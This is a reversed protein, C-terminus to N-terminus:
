RWGVKEATFKNIVLNGDAFHARRFEGSPNRVFLCMIDAKASVDSGSSDLDTYDGRGEDTCGAVGEYYTDVAGFLHLFEHAVVEVV